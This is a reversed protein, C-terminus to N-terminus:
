QLDINLGFFSTNAALSYRAHSFSFRIKNMKLSFGGSLGSFARTEDIRLEEARRFSYGLRVQFIKEPWIEIGVVTHRLANNFFGPEDSVVNGELDRRQRPQIKM